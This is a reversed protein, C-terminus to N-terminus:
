LYFIVYIVGEQRVQMQIDFGDETAIDTYAMVGANCCLVDLGKDSLDKKLAASAERTSKLSTLDCAITTM